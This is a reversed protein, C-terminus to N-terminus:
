RMGNALAVAREIAIVLQRAPDAEVIHPIVGAAHIPGGMPAYARAITVILVGGRATAVDDVGGVTFPYQIAGKGFTPMGVLTARNHDKLAAAVVEAASMTRTDVLVVAPVDLASLGADSSFVRDAFEATQGQTTAIIGAPIFRQAVAVGATFSGGPNGRLDLVLARLGLGRLRAVASEFEGVTTPRLSSLRILGVGDKMSVMEARVVSPAPTPLRSAVSSATGSVAELEHEGDLPTRLAEALATPTGPLMARGNVRVLKDGPRFTTNIAAWSDPLVGDIVVANDRFAVLLGYGALELIPSALERRAQGPSLYVTYEDLGSCAGCLLELVVASPQLTPFEAQAAAALERVAHRGERATQPPRQRWDDALARRFKTIAATTSKPLHATRFAPDVLARDFEDLGTLFLRAPTARDRDAFNKGLKAVTEAYLDFAEAPQLAYVFQQFGPDRHRRTRASQRLRDALRDRVDATPRGGTYARVTFEVAKDWDGRKEAADALALLADPDKPLPDPPAATGVLTFAVVGVLSARIGVTM